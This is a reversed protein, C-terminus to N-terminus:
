GSHVGNVNFCDRTKLKIGVQAPLIVRLTDMRFAAAVSPEHAASQIKDDEESCIVIPATFLRARATM